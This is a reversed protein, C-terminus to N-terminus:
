AAAHSMGHPVQPIVPRTSMDDYLSRSDFRAYPMPLSLSVCLGRFSRLRERSVWRHGERAQRLLSRAMQRVRVIEPYCHLIADAEHRHRLGPARSPNLRVMGGQFYTSDFWLYGVAQMNSPSGPWLRTEDGSKGGKGSLSSLRRPISSCSIWARNRLQFVMPVMLRTFWMTAAVGVLYLPSAATTSTRTASSSCTACKRPWDFTSTGLRSISHCLTTAM